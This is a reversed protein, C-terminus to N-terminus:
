DANSVVELKCALNTVQQCLQLLVHSQIPELFGMPLSLTIRTYGNDATYIEMRIPEMGDLKWYIDARANNLDHFEMLAAQCAYSLSKYLPDQEIIKSKVKNAKTEVQPEYDEHTM